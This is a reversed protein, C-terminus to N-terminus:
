AESRAIEIRYQTAQSATAYALSGERSVESQSEKGVELTESDTSLVAGNADLLVLTVRVMAPRKFPNQVTASWSFSAQQDQKGTWSFAPNEVSVYPGEEQAAIAPGAVLTLALITLLFMRSRRFM